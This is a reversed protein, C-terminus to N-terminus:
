SAEGPTWGSRLADHLCEACMGHGAHPDDADVPGNCQSCPAGLVEVDLDDDDVGYWTETLTSLLEGTDCVTQNFGSFDNALWEDTDYDAPITVAWEEERKVLFTRKVLIRKTPRTTTTESM